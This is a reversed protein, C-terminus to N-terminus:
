NYCFVSTPWLLCYWGSFFHNKFDPKPLCIFTSFCLHIFINCTTPIKRCKPFFVQYLPSHSVRPKSSFLSLYGSTMYLSLWFELDMPPYDLVILLYAYKITMKSNRISQFIKKPIFIYKCWKVKSNEGEVGVWTSRWGIREWTLQM